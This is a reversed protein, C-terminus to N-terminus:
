RLSAEIDVASGAGSGGPTTLHRQKIIASTGELTARRPVSLGVDPVLGAGPLCRDPGPHM